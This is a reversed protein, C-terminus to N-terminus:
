DIVIEKVDLDLTRIERDESPRFVNENVSFCIRFRGKKQIEELRHAQKFAIAKFATSSKGPVYVQMQLHNEGVIRLNDNYIKLEESLFVPNMNGPGFPAFQKLLKYFSDNVETISLEADVEVVPILQEETIREKVSADFRHIFDTVRDPMMTVGAAHMHGGFNEFLDACEELAAYLDFGRVSRASGTVKGNSETLVVTPRYHVEILRSAVIGVVGKHWHPQFVVTSRREMYGPDKELLSLAELTIQKDLERRDKNQTNLEEANFVAAEEADAILLEVAAKGHKLRGAANIRPAIVFVVDEVSLSKNKFAAKDLLAKIGPRLDQELRQLGLATITRNEGTLPVIDACASIAALDLYEYANEPSLERVNCLALMLKFGIGCGSLEKFPYGCDAQKPNLMAFAPPLEEGPLHHDCVIFDIGYDLARSIKDVSKVGCDLAIILTYGEDRAFEVGRFSVGYGETYRDPIYFGIDPYQLKDRFFSFMAAVSTTGDVDYDGYILIKEGRALARTIRSVAKDMDKMLFPDHFHDASPRFFNRAEEFTHIGRQILLKVFVDRIGLQQKLQQFVDSPVPPPFVIKKAM